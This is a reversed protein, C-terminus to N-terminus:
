GGSVPFGDVPPPAAALRCALGHFAWLNRRPGGATRDSLFGRCLGSAFAQRRFLTSYRM